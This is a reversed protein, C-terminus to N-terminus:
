RFKNAAMGVIKRFVRDHAEQTVYPVATRVTTHQACQV